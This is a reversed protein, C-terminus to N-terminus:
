LGLLKWFRPGSAGFDILFRTEDGFARFDFFRCGEWAFRENKTKRFRGFEKELPELFLRSNCRTKSAM